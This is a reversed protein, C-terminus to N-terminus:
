QSKLSQAGYIENSKMFLAWAITFRYSTSVSLLLCIDSVHQILGSSQPLIKSLFM